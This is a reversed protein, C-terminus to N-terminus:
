KGLHFISRLSLFEKSLPFVSRYGKVAEAEDRLRWAEEADFRTRGSSFFCGFVAL